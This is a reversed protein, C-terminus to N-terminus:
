APDARVWRGGAWKARIGFASALVDITEDDTLDREDRSSGKTAIYHRGSLTLAGDPSLIVCNWGRTFPSGPDAQHFRATGAFEALEHPVPDLRYHPVWRGDRHRWELDLEDGAAVLRFAGM